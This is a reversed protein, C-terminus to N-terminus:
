RPPGPGGAAQRVIIFEVRRNALRGAETTNTAIPGAPGYGQAELRPPAIGREILAKRVRTARRGSLDQNRAAPGRDDTYGDIRVLEIGPNDRLVAAVEDVIRFSPPEIVDSDNAFKIQELLVIRGTELRAPPPAVPPPAAVPPAVPAPPLAPPAAAVVVPPEAPPLPAAVVVPPQAPAAAPAPRVPPSWTLGALLRFRPTGYGDSLGPGGGATLALGSPLRYSAAALLEAPRASRGSAIEGAATALVSWRGDPFPYEGGVAYTFATRQTIDVFERAQRIVVGLNADLRWGGPARLEAAARPSATLGGQGAYRATATPFSLPLLVAWAVPGTAGVKFRPTFRLDGLGGSPSALILGPQLDSAPQGSALLTVPVVLSFEWRDTWGLTGILSANTAHRVLAVSGGGWVLRLPENAYDVMLGLQWARDGAVQASAVGLLDKAGGLPQFRTVEIADVTEARAPWAVVLVLLLAAGGLTRRRRRFLALLALLGLPALDGGGTSSCGGSGRVHLDGGSGAPACSGGVCAQGPACDAGSTCSTACTAGSCAYAGCSSSSTSGCAGAGDCTAPPTVAGGSCSGARCTASSGPFGCATRAAGDCQGGCASGDTACAARGGRPLGTVAACQGPSGAVDCAECQGDCSSNCCLGDVCHDNQCQHDGGCAQGDALRPTCVGGSCWNGAICGADDVCNGDCATAGCLYPSCAQSRAVPCHGAGDCADPLTAIGGTCAGTRCADAPYSCATRSSGDCAGGCTSGDTACPTRANLPSGVVPSCTGVQGAVTCAECQGGCASDCCVGDTCFGSACQSAGACATAGPLKDICVGASCFRGALCDSDATCDGACASGPADCTYPACNQTQPAPCAGAGDCAAPLTAAGGACSAGRCAATPYACATTSSGDCAGGCASGDSSCAARAGVPAGTAPTCAGLHGQANCAECQGGCASDCCVGDTCHGGACQSDAACAAGPAYTPACLGASCFNGAGCDADVGCGGLCAVAGCAYPACAQQQPAPCTGAGDCDAALTATGGTCSAARCTAIPYTCSATVVGNCAGGCASGDTGCAARGGAPAGTVPSCTGELGPLNCAECQGDCATNCCVGDTCSGSTCQTGDTCAGGDSLRPLCTGSSCWDGSVCQSDNACTSVCATPGCAYPACAQTQPAPCSGADCSAAATSTGTSPDCSAGRCSSTPYTCATALTGDCSGGCATGDTACATRGGRPQGTVTTCQGALGALACAQCQGGCATDCCVGDTCHGTPCESDLTCSTGANRSFTAAITHDATVSVIVYSGTLAAGYRDTGNDTFTALAWGPDPTVTCTAPLGHDVLGPCTVTGNTVPTVTISHRDIAFSVAVTHAVTVNTFTYTGVAGVSTGDVLVDAVHYNAAPTITFAQNSGYNVTVAGSPSISGNTLSSAIV